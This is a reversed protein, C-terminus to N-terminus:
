HRQPQQKDKAPKGMFYNPKREPVSKLKQTFRIYLKEMRYELWYFAKILLGEKAMVNGANGGNIGWSIFCKRCGMPPILSHIRWRLLRYRWGNWISAFPRHKMHGLYQSSGCCPRVRGDTDIYPEKWPSSCRRPFRNRVPFIRRASRIKKWLSEKPAPPPVPEYPEPTELRVGLEAAVAKAEEMYRNAREPDFRCSQDDYETGMFFYDLVSVNTIGYRHALRIMDPLEHINDRVAVFHISFFSVFQSMAIDRLKKIMALKDIVLDFNSNVRIQEFTEKTAGDMSIVIEVPSSTLQELREMNLLSANTVFFVESGNKLSMEFLEGFDAALTPEGFGTISIRTTTPMLEKKVKEKIDQQLDEAYYADYGKSCTKCAFNCKLTSEVYLQSPMSKLRLAQKEYERNNLKQNKRQLTTLEQRQLGAFMSRDRGARRLYHIYRIGLKADACAPDEELVQRYRSEADDLRGLNVMRDAMRWVVELNGPWLRELREYAEISEEHRGAYAFAGALHGMLAPNDPYEELLGQLEGIGDTEFAQMARIITALRPEAEAPLLPKEDVVSM